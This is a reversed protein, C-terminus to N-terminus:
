FASLLRLDRVAIAEIQFRGRLFTALQPSIQADIWVIV